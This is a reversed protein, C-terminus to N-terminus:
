VDPAAEAPRGDDIKLKAELPVALAHSYDLAILIQADYRWRECWENFSRASAGDLDIRSLPLGSYRFGLETM